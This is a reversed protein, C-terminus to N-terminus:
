ASRVGREEVIHMRFPRQALARAGKEDVSGAVPPTAQGGRQTHMEAWTPCRNRLMESVGFGPPTFPGTPPEGITPRM